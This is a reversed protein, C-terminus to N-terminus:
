AAKRRRRGSGVPKGPASSDPARPPTFAIIEASVPVTGAYRRGLAILRVAVVASLGLVALAATYEEVALEGTQRALGLKVVFGCGIALLAVIVTCVLQAALDSALWGPLAPRRFQQFALGFLLASVALSASAWVITM